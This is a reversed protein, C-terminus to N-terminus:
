FKVMNARMSVVGIAFVITTSFFWKDIPQDTSTVLHLEIWVMDNIMAIPGITLDVLGIYPTLIIRLYSSRGFLERM